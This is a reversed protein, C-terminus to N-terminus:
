PTLPYGRNWVNIIGAVKLYQNARLGRQFNIPKVSGMSVVDSYPCYKTQAVKLIMELVKQTTTLWAEIGSLILTDEIAPTAYLYLGEIQICYIGVEVEM